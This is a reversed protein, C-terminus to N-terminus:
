VTTAHSKATAACRERGACPAPGLRSHIEVDCTLAAPKHPILFVTSRDMKCPLADGGVYHLSWKAETRRKPALARNTEQFSLYWSLSSTPQQAWPPPNHNAADQIERPGDWRIESDSSNASVSAAKPTLIGSEPM